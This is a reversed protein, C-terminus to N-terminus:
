AEDINDEDVIFQKALYDFSSSESIQQSPIFVHSWEKQKNARAWRSAVECYSVARHKKAIVDATDIKDEGKVEVLYIRDDVEVVFDPEYQHGRNYKINFEQKAPRLWNKVKGERADRELVRALLLEPKSDFKATDFVGYKIGEFLVSKIGTMYAAYLGVRTEWTYYQQVNTQSVSVVEEKLFGNTVYFHQMMQDYIRNAIDKKNMMVINRMGNNGYLNEYHDCVQTILKILLGSIQEYDIEPKERLISLIEKKPNISDFDIHNGKVVTRDSMEQLSQMVIENPLPVHLFDSTDIDFDTFNYEEVGADTVKIRPIPIFKNIAEVHIEEARKEIWAFLPGQSDRYVDALDKDKSLEESVVEAIKKTEVKKKDPESYIQKTVEEKVIQTTREILKINEETHEIGTDRLDKQVQEDRTITLSLQTYTSEQPKIEEVKIVNDANFISDGKQAEELIEDFKDHATLMVSDVEKVGTRKGYPLRLGRGVMQERLIKSAAQRLPVITYLNNVDWGEKLMNVHIVIQIPNDYREVDLLLKMNAETEAGKQKSHVVIAKGRYEGNKFADSEVYDLVWKAHDTDRCVILMFPKVKQVKNEEAYAVLHSRINEHCLIGDNIMLKDLQEDGFDFNKVNSRTVAYPTRTYGDAIAKSLPYEVVVNKFLQQKGGKNVIPTATLELGLLPKLDNLASSGADARYHHSEDMILVLDDLSAIEDFFSQGLYENIKKMNTNEKNFKDINFIYINIGHDFISGQNKDFDANTIIRPQVSYCGLGKFVYKSSSSDGLDSKLKEYVTTGPAVVFFNRIGHQTYLYTIFAGMLRTKGVGTALAFTLSIFDREFETCTPYMARIAGIAANLNMGKKINVNNMIDDLVVLSQKQPKRLSMVGSIYEPNYQPFMSNNMTMRRKM